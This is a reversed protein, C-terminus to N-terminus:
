PGVNGINSDSVVTLRRETPSECLDFHVEIHKHPVVDPFLDPWEIISVANQDFYESIGINLLEEEREIRYFDFHYLPIRGEHHESVITFTPSAITVSLPIGLGEAFGQTFTTKGAGMPGILCVVDGSLANAGLERGFRQTDRASQSIISKPRDSM